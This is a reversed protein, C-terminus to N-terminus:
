AKTTTNFSVFELVNVICLNPLSATKDKVKNKDCFYPKWHNNLQVELWIKLTTSKTGDTSVKALFNIHHLYFGIHLQQSKKQLNSKTM